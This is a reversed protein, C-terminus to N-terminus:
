RIRCSNAHRQVVGAEADVGAADPPVSRFSEVAILYVEGIGERRWVERWVAAARAVEPIIDLRYVVLLPRGDIRIYRADRLYPLLDLAFREDLEPSYSQRMLVQQEGGDWRRTWNENAWCLCFPLDIEPHRLLQDVPKELLRQGDFWYHYFCFGEIGHERALRAQRELVRVDSLDYYGIEAPVRPQYHRDLLPRGQRM